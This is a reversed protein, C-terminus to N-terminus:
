TYYSVIYLYSLNQSTDLEGDTNAKLASYM